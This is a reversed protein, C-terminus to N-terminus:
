SYTPTLRVRYGDAMNVDGATIEAVPIIKNGEVKEVVIRTYDKLPEASQVDVKRIQKKPKM